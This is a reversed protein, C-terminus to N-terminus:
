LEFEESVKIDILCEPYLERFINVAEYGTCHSPWVKKVGSKKIMNVVYRIFRNDKDILHLGGLISYIQKGPFISRVETIFRLIDPHSCGCVLSLGKKTEVVLAQEKLEGEKYHVSFCGTTFINKDVEQSKDVLQFDYDGIKDKFEEFFDCCAFVTINKNIALLDWLGGVHDWHRHSIVIKEIKGLNIGLKNLNGITYESKEGVDFLIRGDILYSVGWGSYYQEGITDKDFIVRFKM